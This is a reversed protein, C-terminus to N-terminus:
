GAPASHRSWTSARAASACECSKQAILPAGGGDGGIRGARQRAGSDRRRELPVLKGLAQLGVVERDVVDPVAQFEELAIGPRTKELQALSDRHIMASRMRMSMAGDSDTVASRYSAARSGKPTQRTRAWPAPPLWILLKMTLNAPASAPRPM